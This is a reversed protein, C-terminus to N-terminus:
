WLFRNKQTLLWHTKDATAESVNSYIFTYGNGDQQKWTKPLGNEINQIIFRSNDNKQLVYTAGAEGHRGSSLILRQDNLCFRTNKLSGDLGSTYGDLNLTPTCQAIVAVGALNFGPGVLGNGAQQNYQLGFSPTLDHIGAPFSFPLAASLGGQNVSVDVKLTGIVPSEVAALCSSFLSGVLVSGAVLLRVVDKM